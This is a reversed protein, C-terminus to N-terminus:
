NVNGLLGFRLRFGMLRKWEAEPYQSRIDGAVEYMDGDIEVFCSDANYSAMPRPGQLDEQKIPEHISSEPVPKGRVQFEWVPTQKGDGSGNVSVAADVPLESVRGPACYHVETEGTAPGETSELRLKDGVVAWCGVQRENAASWQGFSCNWQLMYDGSALFEFQYAVCEEFDEGFSRVASHLYMVKGQERVLKHFRIKYALELSDYLHASWARCCRGQVESVFSLVRSLAVDNLETLM